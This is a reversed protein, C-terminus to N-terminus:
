RGTRSLVCRVTRLLIRLDTRLGVSDIYDLDIHTNEHM